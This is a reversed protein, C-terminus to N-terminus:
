QTHEHRLPRGCGPCFRYAPNLRCGCNSCFKDVETTPPGLNSVGTEAAISETQVQSAPSLDGRPFLMVKHRRRYGVWLWTCGGFLVAAGALLGFALITRSTTPRSQAVVTPPSQRKTVSPDPTTKTYSITFSKVEGPDIDRHVLWHFTFGRQNTEQRSSPPDTTFNTAHLPQQMDVEFREIAYTARLTYTFRKNAGAVFPDYYFEVFFRSVVMDIELSDHSEGPTVRHPLLLLENQESIRGAGIIEAGKPVPLTLSTPVTSRPALEGRFMILVRPDDYEPWISLRLRAIRLETDSVDSGATVTEPPSVSAETQLALTRIYAITHWIEQDTLQDGFAQMASSLGMAEGGQSIVEFLQQDSRAGMYAQDTLNRPPVSLMGSMRGGRGDLGHCGVCLREYMVKGVATDSTAALVPHTMALTILVILVLYRPYHMNLIIGGIM